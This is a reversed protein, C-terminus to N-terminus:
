DKKSEIIVVFEGKLNPRNQIVLRCEAITGRIYEEHLKSIERAICIKRDGGCHKDLETILKDIRHSSEYLISTFNHNAVMELFTMRGKKQPPFGFFTFNHTELGSATLAPLFASPGPLAIVDIGNKIAKSVVRYGPDSIVPTGADSVLAVIKGNKIHDILEEARSDENYDHYSLLKKETINFLKILNGTHRTDECAIIDAANLVKLGRLTIDDLNGIPTPVLYLGPKLIKQDSKEM